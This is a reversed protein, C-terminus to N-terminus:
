CFRDHPAAGPSKNPSQPCHMRNVAVMDAALIPGHGTKGSDDNGAQGVMDRLTAIAPLLPEKGRGVLDGIAVTQGLRRALRADRDPRPTEHGIVDMENEGGLAFVAQTSRESAHMPTVRGHDVRPSLAGAVEPLSSKAGNRHVLRM